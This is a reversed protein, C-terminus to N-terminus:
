ELLASRSARQELPLRERPQAWLAQPRGPLPAAPLSVQLGPQAGLLVWEDRLGRLGAPLDLQPAVLLAYLFVDKRQVGQPLQAQHLAPAGSCAAWRERM